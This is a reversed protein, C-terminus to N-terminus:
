NMSLIKLMLSEVSKVRHTIEKLINRSHLHAENSIKLRDQLALITIFQHATEAAVDYRKIDLEIEALAKKDKSQQVRSNVLGGDLIWSISLTTQANSFDSYDGTGLADEIVLSVEPKQGIAAQAITHNSSQVRYAFSALGPHQKLSKVIAEKITLTDKLPEMANLNSTLLFISIASFIYNSSIGVFFRGIIPKKYTFKFNLM